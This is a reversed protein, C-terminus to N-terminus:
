KKLFSFNNLDLSTNILISKQDLIDKRDKYYKIYNIVKYPLISTKTRMDILSLCKKIASIQM